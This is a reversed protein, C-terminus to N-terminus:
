PTNPLIPFAISLLCNKPMRHAVCEICTLLIDSISSAIIFCCGSNLPPDLYFVYRTHSDVNPMTLHAQGCRVLYKSRNVTYKMNHYNYKSSQGIDPGKLMSLFQLSLLVFHSHPESMSPMAYQFAAFLVTQNEPVM